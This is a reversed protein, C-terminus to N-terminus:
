KGGMLSSVVLSWGVCLRWGVGPICKSKRVLFSLYKTEIAGTIKVVGFCKGYVIMGIGAM